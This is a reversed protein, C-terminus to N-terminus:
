LVLGQEKLEKEKYFAWGSKYKLVIAIYELQKRSTKLKNLILFDVFNFYLSAEAKKTQRISDLMADIMFKFSDWDLIVPAKYVPEEQKPAQKPPPTFTSTYTTKSPVSIPLLPNAKSIFQYESNLQQMDNVNGGRDPHFRLALEKFKSKVEEKNTCYQLYKFEPRKMLM